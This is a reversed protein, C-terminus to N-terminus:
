GLLCNDMGWEFREHPVWWFGTKKDKTAGKVDEHSPVGELEVLFEVGKKTDRGRHLQVVKYLLQGELKNENGQPQSGQSSKPMSARSDNPHPLDSSQEYQVIAQM